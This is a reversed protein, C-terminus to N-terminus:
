SLGALFSEGNPSGLGTVDDYGAVTHLTGTQNTTRLYFSLGARDDVGDNFNPRVAAVRTGPSVIDHFTDTGAMAYLAPNAFGHALGVRQDALAMIGAFLPCSLSTGGIRFEGYRVSGDPWTLSEGELIGTIPDADLAVDPVVRNQGDWRSSLRDPVVGVQYPPEAFLRSTGGGGGYFFDGPPRPTWRHGALSSNTTGWGTEFRYDDHRGIGLTTGGVATVYPSSAPWSVSRTGLTQLNDGGDGSSFYLGIGEAAAQQYLQTRADVNAQTPSEGTGSYYSNSVIQARGRDVIDLLAQDLDMGHPSAAAEYLIEAGPAMSHVAEVDLTEEGYWLQKVGDSARAEHRHVVQVDLQPLGHLASYTDLDKQITPAAFAGVIGVTVGTGDIGSRTAADVGYAGRLQVPTYGCPAYPHHRGYAPPKNTAIKQGWFLSCPPANVYAPPPPAAALSTVMREDNLGLVGEAIGALSSPVTPVTSPARLTADRVRYLNLDVGFAAEAEAVTGSAPVWLHDAPVAGVTFGASRLWGVVADVDAQPRSFRARFRDPTLYRAYDPSSPDSVRAVLAALAGRDRFGLLMALDVRANPDARRVFADPTALSARSNGLAIRDAAGATWVTGSALLAIACLVVARTRGFTM